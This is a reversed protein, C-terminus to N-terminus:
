NIWFTLPNPHPYDEVLYKLGMVIRAIFWGCLGMYLIPGILIVTTIISIIYGILGIVFTRLIFIYHGALIRDGKDKNVYAMVAGILVFVPVVVGCLYLIYIVTLNKKSAELYQKVKEDM